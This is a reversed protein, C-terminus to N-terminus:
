LYGYSVAEDQAEQYEKYVAIMRPRYEDNVRAIAAEIAADREAIFEETAKVADQLRSM